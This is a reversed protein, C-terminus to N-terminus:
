EGEPTLVVLEVRRNQERGFPTSNDAIPRTPGYGKAILRDPPIQHVSILYDRVAEARAQSLRMNFAFSGQSDTHGQIEIKVNPNDALIRKILQAARDLIPYSEPRINAKGVDFHIKPLRVQLKKRVLAVESEVTKDPEIEYVKEVTIYGPASVTVRYSGPELTFSASPGQVTEGGELQITAQDVPTGKEVDVVSINLTGLKPKPKAKRKLTFTLSLTDGPKLVLPKSAPLFDAHELNLTYVGPDASLDFAGADTSTAQAILSDGRYLRVDVGEVPLENEDLVVGALYAPRPKEPAKKQPPAILVYTAVDVGVDPRFGPLLGEKPYARRSFLPVSGAVQINAGQRQGLRFGLTIWTPGNGYLDRYSKKTYQLTWIEFLPSFVAPSLDLGLGGFVVSPLTDAVYSYGGVNLHVGWRSAGRFTAMAQGGLALDEMTFRRLYGGQFQIGSSTTEPAVAPDRKVGTPIVGFVGAGLTWPSEPLPYSFKLDIRTDGLGYSYRTTKSRDKEYDALFQGTVSFAFNQTLAYGLGFYGNAALTPVDSGDTAKIGRYWAHIGPLLLALQGPGSIEASQVRVVGEQANHSLAAQLTGALLLCGVISAKMVGGVRNMM